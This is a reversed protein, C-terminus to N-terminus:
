RATQTETSLDYVPALKRPEAYRRSKGEFTAGGELVLESHYIAGEVHSDDCLTLKDAYIDGDVRGRVIVVAAIVDGAVTAGRDVEISDAIICGDVFGEVHVPVASQLTGWIKIGRSVVFM